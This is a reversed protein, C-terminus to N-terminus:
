GMPTCIEILFGDPDKVYAVTQGWPKTKAKEVEIAGAKLAQAVTKEVDDTTFGIEMGFPQDDVTSEIFGKSLNTKALSVAAFSLTTEGANLEGYENGPSIFKRKFGFAKEYFSLSREVDPVYFITYAFKVM